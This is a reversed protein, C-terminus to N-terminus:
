EVEVGGDAGYAWDIRDSRGDPMTVTLDIGDRDERAVDVTPKQGWASETTPYLLTVFRLEATREVPRVRRWPIAWEVTHTGETTTFDTPRIVHVGLRADGDAIGKIWDGEVKSGGTFHCVWDFDHPEFAALRDVILFTDPKIWLVHRLHEKLPNPPRNYRGTANAVLYNFRDGHDCRVIGADANFPEANKPGRTRQSSEEGDILIANHLSTL